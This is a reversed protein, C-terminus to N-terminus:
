VDRAAATRPSPYSESDSEASSESSGSRAWPERWVHSTGGTVYCSCGSPIRVDQLRPRVFPNRPDACLMKVVAFRQVCVSSMCPALFNCRHGEYRCREIRVAQPLAATNIVLQWLGAFTRAWGPRSYRVESECVFEGPGHRASVSDAATRSRSNDLTGNDHWRFEEPPYQYLQEYMQRLEDTYRGVISDVTSRPYDDHDYDCIPEEAACGVPREPFLAPRSPPSVLGTVDVEGIEQLTAQGGASGPRYRSPRDPSSHSYHGGYEPYSQHSNDAPYSPRDGANYSPRDSNYSPRDKHYSPYSPRSSHGSSEPRYHASDAATFPDGSEPYRHRSAAPRPLFQSSGTVTQIYEIDCVARCEDQTIFNNRNGKCGGYHFTKCREEGSDWYWATVHGSCPGADPYQQCASRPIAPTQPEATGSLIGHEHQWPAHRGEVAAPQDPFLVKGSGSDSGRGLRSVTGNPAAVEEIAAALSNDVASSLPSESVAATTAIWLLLVLLTERCLEM